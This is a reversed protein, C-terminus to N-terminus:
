KLTNGKVTITYPSCWILYEMTYQFTNGETTINYTSCWLLHEVTYEYKIEEAMITISLVLTPTGNGIPNYKM